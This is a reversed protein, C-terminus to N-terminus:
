INDIIKIEGNRLVFEIWSQSTSGINRGEVFVHYRDEDWRELTYITGTTSAPFIYSKGDFNM